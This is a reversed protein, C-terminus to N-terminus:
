LVEPLYAFSYDVSLQINHVRSFVLGDPGNLPIGSVVAINWEGLPLISILTALARDDTSVIGSAGTTARVTAVGPATIDLEIGENSIGEQTFVRLRVEEANFATQNAPFRQRDYNFSVQGNKYFAYWSAPFDYRMSLTKQRMLEGARFPLALVTTRLSPDYKAKYYLVLRIDFIRNLDIANSRRPLHLQWTGGLGLGQFLGRVGTDATYLFIDNRLEFDSLAMTDISHTRSGTTNNRRRFSSVGGAMLTGNLAQDGLLGVVEIEVAEIRQEYFGPHLRDFEYLDTEFVLLGTNLFHEFQAPYDNVLSIVDKLQSSKRTIHTIAYHTFADVDILLADGALLRTDRGPAENAIGHGYETKIVHLNEDNEFNYARQMLKAISIAREIYSRSIDRMVEAMASWADPTFFENDFAKLAEELLTVQQLSAQWAIETARTRHAASALQAQAVGIAETLQDITDQMRDLEYQRSKRGARLVQAAALLPGAGSITEGRDLRDALASIESYMGDEGGLLAQSAAQAWIQASSSTAYGNRQDIADLRRSSALDVGRQAALKDDQAARYMQERAEAENQAMAMANDLERRTASEFEERSKFNVFEREAQIAEKCFARAVGQLYEFTHIPSLLLGYYDFGAAISALHGSARLLLTAMERHIWPLPRQQIRAILDRAEQAPVSLSDTTYFFSDPVSSDTMVIKEFQARAADIREQKYLVVGWELTNRALRTWIVSAEIRQNLYSYTAAQLYNSEANAFRGMRHYSDGIKLPLVYAYLHLSYISFTSTDAISVRIDRFKRKNIRAAYISRTVRDHDVLNGDGTKFSVVKEGVPIGVVWTKSQQYRNAPLTLELTGWTAVRGELRFPVLAENKGVIEKLRTSDLELRDGLTAGSVFRRAHVMLATDEVLPRVRAGNVRDIRRTIPQVRPAPQLVTGRDLAGLRTVAQSFFRKATAKDGRLKAAIGSLHLAQAEGVPDKRSRFGAVAKKAVEMAEASNGAQIHSAALNMQLVALSGRDVRNAADAKELTTEMVAIAAGPKGEALLGIGVLSAANITADIASVEHFGVSIFQRLDRPLGPDLEPVIIPPRESTTFRVAELVHVSAKLMLQEISKNLPLLRDKVGLYSSINFRPQIIKLIKSRAEKYKNVALEYQRRAFHRDGQRMLLEITALEARSKETSGGSAAGQIDKAILDMSRWHPTVPAFLTEYNATM